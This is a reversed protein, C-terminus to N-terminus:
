LASKVGRRVGQVTRHWKGLAVIRANRIFSAMLFFLSFQVWTSTLSLYQDQFIQMILPYLSLAYLMVSAASPHSITARRYLFGHLLGFLFQAVLVGLLGFDRFYPDAVTYVNIPFPVFSYDRVLSTVEAEFGLTNGILSFFRFSYKGMAPKQPINLLQDLAVVPGMTYAFVGMRADRIVVSPPDGLAGAKHMVLGILVFVTVGLTVYMLIITLPRMRRLVLMIGTVATLLLFLNTRGTSLVALTTSLVLSFVVLVRSRDRHAIYRVLLGLAVFVSIPLAYSLLGYRYGGPTAVGEVAILTQAVRVNRLFTDFPGLQALAVARQVSLPLVAAVIVIMAILMAKPHLSRRNVQPLSLKPKHGNTSIWAGISFAIASLVILIYVAHSADNLIQWPIGLIATIVCWISAHMFAPYRVDRFRLWNLLALFVLLIASVVAM